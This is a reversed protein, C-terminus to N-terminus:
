LFFGDLKPQHDGFMVVITPEKQNKFYNVIKEFARDSEHILSLYRNATDTAKEDKIKIEEKFHIKNRDSIWWPEPDNCQILIIATRSRKKNFVDIIKNYDEADSYWGRFKEGNPNMSTEDFFKDFGILPYVTDRNWGHAKYPHFALTDYGGAKLQSALSPVKHKVFQTYANGNLPLSSVSNGTLFEYESNSTGGGFVSVLM